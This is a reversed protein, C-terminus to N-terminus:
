LFPTSHILNKRKKWEASYFFFFGLGWPVKPGWVTRLAQLGQLGGGIARHASAGGSRVVGGACVGPVRAPLPRSLCRGELARGSPRAREGQAWESRGGRLSWARAPRSQAARLVACLVDGRRPACMPDIASCAWQTGGRPVRPTVGQTAVAVVSPGLVGVVRAGLTDPTIPRSKAGRLAGGFAPARVDPRHGLMVAPHWGQTVQPSGQAGGQSLSLGSCAWWARASRAPRSQTPRPLV